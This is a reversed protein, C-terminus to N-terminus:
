YPKYSTQVRRFPYLLRLIIDDPSATEIDAETYGCEPLSLEKDPM